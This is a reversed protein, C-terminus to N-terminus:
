SRSRFLVLACKAERGAFWVCSLFCTLFFSCCIQTMQRPFEGPTEGGGCFYWSHNSSCPLHRCYKLALVSQATAVQSGNSWLCQLHRWYLGSLVVVVVVVVM